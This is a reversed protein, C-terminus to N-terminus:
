KKPKKRMVRRALEEFSLDSKVREAKPGPTKKHKAKKVKKPTRM